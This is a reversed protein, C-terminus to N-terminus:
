LPTETSPFSGSFWTSQEILFRGTKSLVRKVATIIQDFDSISLHPLPSGLITVLDFKGTVHKSLEKADGALARFKLKRRKAEKSDQALSERRLDLCTVEAGYNQAFAIGEICSGAMLCLVRPKKPLVLDEVSLVYGDGGFAGALEDMHNSLVETPALSDGGGDGM